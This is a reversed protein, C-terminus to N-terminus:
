GTYISERDYAAIEFNFDHRMAIDCLQFREHLYAKFHEEEASNGSGWLTNIELPKNAVAAVIEQPSGRFNKEQWKKGLRLVHTEGWM